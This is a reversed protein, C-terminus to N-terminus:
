STASYYKELSLKVIKYLDSENKMAKCLIDSVEEVENYQFDVKYKIVGNPKTSGQILIKTQKDSM